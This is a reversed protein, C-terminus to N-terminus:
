GTDEPDRTGETGFVLNPARQHSMTFDLLLHSPAESLLFLFVIYICHAMIVIGHSLLVSSFAERPRLIQRIM